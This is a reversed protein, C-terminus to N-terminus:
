IDPSPRMPRSGSHWTRLGISLLKTFGSLFFGGFSEIENFACPQKYQFSWSILAVAEEQSLTTLGVGIICLAVSNPRCRDTQGHSRGNTVCWTADFCSRISIRQQLAQYSARSERPQCLSCAKLSGILGLGIILRGTQRRSTQTDAVIISFIESVIAM